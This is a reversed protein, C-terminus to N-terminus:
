KCSDNVTMQYTRPEDGLKTRFFLTEPPEWRHSSALQSSTKRQRFRVATRIGPRQSTSSFTITVLPYDVAGLHPYRISLFSSDDCQQSADRVALVGIAAPNSTKDNLFSRALSATPDSDTALNVFEAVPADLGDFHGVNIVVEATILKEASVLADAIPKTPRQRSKLKPSDINGGSSNPDSLSGVIGSQVVCFFAFSKASRDTLM